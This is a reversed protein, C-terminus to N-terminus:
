AILRSCTTSAIARVEDIRPAGLVMRTSLQDANMEFASSRQAYSFPTVSSKLQGPLWVNQKRHRWADGFLKMVVIVEVPTAMTVVAVNIM